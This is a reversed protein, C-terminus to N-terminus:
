SQRPVDNVPHLEEPAMGLARALRVVKEFSPAQNRANEIDSITNEHVGSEVYLRRRTWNKAARAARLNEACSAM